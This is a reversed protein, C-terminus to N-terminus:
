WSVRSVYAVNASGESSGGPPRYYDGMAASVLSQVEAIKVYTKSGLRSLSNSSITGGGSDVFWRGFSLEAIRAAKDYEADAEEPPPALSSVVNAAIGMAVEVDLADAEAGAYYNRAEAETTKPTAM